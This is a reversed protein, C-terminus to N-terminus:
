VRGSAQPVGFALNRLETLEAEIDDPVRVGGSGTFGLTVIEKYLSFARQATETGPFERICSELFLEPLEDAFFFPLESYALGLLYLVKARKEPAIKDEKLSHLLATARLLEVTGKRGRLPDPGGLGQRVLNEAKALKDVVLPGENEWRRLSIIWEQIEDAEYPALAVKKKIKELETLAERPDPSVRVEIVLWERLAEMRRGNPDKQDYVVDLFTRKAKEFQRSALYLEGREIPEMKEISDSSDYFSMEVEHRTHCSICYNSTTKLRWLAYGKKGEAFRNKADALMDNLATLTSEFGPETAPGRHLSDIENFKSTLTKLLESIRQENAPDSFKDRNSLFPQLDMFARYVVSMEQPLAPRSKDEAVAVSSALLLVVSIILLKM